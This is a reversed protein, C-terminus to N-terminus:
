FRGMEKDKERFISMVNPNKSSKEQIIIIIKQPPYKILQLITLPINSKKPIYQSKKSYIYHLTIDTIITSQLIKQIENYGNLKPCLVHKFKPIHLKKCIQNSKEIMPKYYLTGEPFICVYDDKTIQEKITKISTTHNQRDIYVTNEMDSIFGFFPINKIKVDSIFRYKVDNKSFLYYLLIPDLESVHNSISLQHFQTSKNIIEFQINLLYLFIQIIKIYLM